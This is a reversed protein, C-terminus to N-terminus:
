EAVDGDEQGRLYMESVQIYDKGIIEVGALGLARADKLRSTHLLVENAPHGFRRRYAALAALLADDTPADSGVWRMLWPHELM